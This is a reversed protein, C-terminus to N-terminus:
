PTPTAPTESKHAFGLSEALTAKHPEIPKDIKGLDTPSGRFNSSGVAGEVTRLRTEMDDLQKKDAAPAAEIAIVRKKYEIHDAEVANLKDVTKNRADELASLRFTSELASHELNAVRAAIDMFGAYILDSQSALFLPSPRNALLAVADEFTPKLVTM